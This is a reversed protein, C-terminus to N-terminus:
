PGEGCGNFGNVLYYSLLGSGPVTEDFWSNESNLVGVLVASDHWPSGNQIGKYVNKRFAVPDWTLEVKSAFSIPEIEEPIVILPDCVDGSGDNDCDTQDPNPDGGCNDCVDGVGDLDADAQTTNSVDLCNDASSVVFDGDDDNCDGNPSPSSQASSSPNHYKNCEFSTLKNNSASFGGYMIFGFTPNHGLGVNHGFEHVWLKGENATSSMRVVILSNGPTEGCGLINAGPGGCYGIYDVVKIRAINNGMVANLEGGSTIVDLGDGPNGFEVGPETRVYQICCGTDAGGSQTAVVTEVNALSLDVELDNISNNM